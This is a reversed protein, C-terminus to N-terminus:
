LPNPFLYFQELALLPFLILLSFRRISFPSFYDQSFSPSPPISTLILYLFLLSLLQSSWSFSHFYAAAPYPLLSSGRSLGLSRPHSLSEPSLSFSRLWFGWCHPSPVLLSVV